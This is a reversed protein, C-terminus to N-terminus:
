HARFWPSPGGCLVPFRDCHGRAQLGLVQSSSTPLDSILTIRTVYHTQPWGPNCSVRDKGSLLFMFFGPSEYDPKIRNRSTAKSGLLLALRHQLTVVARCVVLCCPNSLLVTAARLDLHVSQFKDAELQSSGAAWPDWAKQSHGQETPAPDSSFNWYPEATTPSPQRPPLLLM